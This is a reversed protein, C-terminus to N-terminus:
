KQQIEREFNTSKQSYYSTTHNIKIYWYYFNCRFFSRLIALLYISSKKNIRSEIHIPNNWLILRNSSNCKFFQYLFQKLGHLINVDFQNWRLSRVMKYLYRYCKLWRMLSNSDDIKMIFFIAARDWYWIYHISFLANLLTSLVVWHLMFYCQKLENEFNGCILPAFILMYHLDPANMKNMRKKTKEKHYKMM